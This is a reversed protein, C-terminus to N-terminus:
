KFILVGGSGWDEDALWIPIRVVGVYSWRKVELGLIRSVSKELQEIKKIIWYKLIWTVIGLFKITIPYDISTCSIMHNTKKKKKDWKVKEGVM